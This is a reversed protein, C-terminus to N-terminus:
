SSPVSSEVPSRKAPSPMPSSSSFAPLVADAHLLLIVLATGGYLVMGPVLKSAFAGIFSEGWWSWVSWFPSCFASSDTVPTRRMVSLGVKHSFFM